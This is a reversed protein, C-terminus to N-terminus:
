DDVHSWTRRAVVSSICTDSVGYHRGVSVKSAGAAVRSRIDRVARENLKAGGHNEGFPHRETGHARCDANNELPTGWEVNSAKNNTRCGDLHRCLAGEPRKGKFALLVLHHVFVHKNAANVCLNVQHYGHTDLSLKMLKGRRRTQILPGDRIARKHVIRDLSRVRGQDSVEYFGEFGPVPLWREGSNVDRPIASDAENAM